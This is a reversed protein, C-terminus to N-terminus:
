CGSGSVTTPRPLTRAAVRDTEPRRFSRRVSRVNRARRRRWNPGIRCIFNRKFFCSTAGSAAAGAGCASAAATASSVPSVGGPGSATAGPSTAGSSTGATVHVGGSAFASGLAASTGAGGGITCLPGWRPSSSTDRPASVLSISCCANNSCVLEPRRRPSIRTSCPIMLSLSSTLASESCSSHSRTSRRRTVGSVWATTRTASDSTRAWRARGTSTVSSTRTIATAPGIGSAATSSSRPADPFLTRKTSAGALSTSRAISREYSANLPSSRTTAVKWGPM